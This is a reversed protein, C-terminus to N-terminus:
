QSLQAAQRQNGFWVDATIERAIEQACADLEICEEILIQHFQLL